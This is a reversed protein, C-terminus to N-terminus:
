RYLLGAELIMPDLAPQVGIGEELHKASEFEFSIPGWPESLAAPEKRIEYVPEIPRYQEPLLSAKPV